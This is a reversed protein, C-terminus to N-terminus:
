GQMAANTSLWAFLLWPTITLCLITCGRWFRGSAILGTGVICGLALFASILAALGIQVSLPAHRISRFLLNFHDSPLVLQDQQFNEGQDGGNSEGSPCCSLSAIGGFGSHVGVLKVLFGSLSLVPSINRDLWVAELGKSAFSLCSRHTPNYDFIHTFHGRLIRDGRNVHLPPLAFFTLVKKYFFIRNFEFSRNLTPILHDPPGKFARRDSFDVIRVDVNEHPADNVIVVTEVISPERSETVAVGPRANSPALNIRERVLRSFSEFRFDHFGSVSVFNDRGFIGTVMLVAVIGILVPKWLRQFEM